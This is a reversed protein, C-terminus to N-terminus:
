KDWKSDYQGNWINPAPALAASPVYIRKKSKPPLNQFHVWTPSWRKDEMYLGLDTMLQLNQLVWTWLAGDADAIDVAHGTMHNSNPAANKTGANVAPPRWGSAVKMPKGYAARVKKIKELLDDLNDSIQQTYDQPFLKDRGMLLEDKSIV